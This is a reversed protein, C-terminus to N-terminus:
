ALWSKSRSRRALLLLGIAVVLVFGQLALPVLSVGNAAGAFVFIGVDQVIVGLLSLVLLPVALAKRLLLMLCGLVGASVAVVSAVVSWGPRAAYVAQQDPTLAAIDAASLRLDAVVAMLGIANWLLAVVVVVFFWIPPKNM